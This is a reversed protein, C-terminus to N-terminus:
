KAPAGTATVHSARAGEVWAVGAILAVVVAAALTAWVIAARGRYKVPGIALEDSNSKLTQNPTDEGRFGKIRLASLVITRLESQEKRSDRMEGRMETMETRIEGLHEFIQEINRESQQHWACVAIPSQGRRRSSSPDLLPNSDRPDDTDSM